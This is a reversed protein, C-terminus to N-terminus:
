AIVSNELFSAVASAPIRLGRRRLEGEGVHHAKLRGSKALRYVTTVHVRLKTAVEKACLLPEETAAAHNSV